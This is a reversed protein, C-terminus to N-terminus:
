NEGAEAELESVREAEEGGAPETLWGSETANRQATFGCIHTHLRICCVRWCLGGNEELEMHAHM